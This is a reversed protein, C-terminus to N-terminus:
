RVLDRYQLLRALRATEADVRHHGFRQVRRARQHVRLEGHLSASRFGLRVDLPCDVAADGVGIEDTVEALRAYQRAYERIAFVHVQFIYRGVREGCQQATFEDVADIAVPDDIAAIRVLVICAVDVTCQIEVVLIEDFLNQEPGQVRDNGLNLGLGVLTVYEHKVALEGPFASRIERSEQTAQIALAILLVIWRQVMRLDVQQVAAIRSEVPFLPFEARRLFVLRHPMGIVRLLALEEAALAFTPLSVLGFPPIRSLRSSV